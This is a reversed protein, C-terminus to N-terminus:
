SVGYEEPHRLRHIALTEPPVSLIAEREANSVPRKDVLKELLQDGIGLHMGQYLQNPRGKRLTWRACELYRNRVTGIAIKEDSFVFGNKSPLSSARVPMDNIECLRSILIQEKKDGSM